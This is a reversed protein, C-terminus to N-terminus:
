SIVTNVSINVIKFFTSSKHVKLVLDYWIIHNGLFCFVKCIMPNALNQDRIIDSETVPSPSSGLVREKFPLHEVLQAVLDNAIGLIGQVRTCIYPSENIKWSSKLLFKKKKSIM